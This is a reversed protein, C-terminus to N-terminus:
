QRCCAGIEQPFVWVYKRSGEKPFGVNSADWGVQNSNVEADVMGGVFLILHIGEVTRTTDIIASLRSSVGVWNLVTSVMFRILWGFFLRRTVAVVVVMMM